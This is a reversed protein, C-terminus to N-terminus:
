KSQGKIRPRGEDSYYMFYNTKFGDNHTIPMLENSVKNKKYFWTEKECIDFVHKLEAMQTTM